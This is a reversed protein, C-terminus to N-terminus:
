RCVMRSHENLTGVGDPINKGNCVLQKAKYSPYIIKYKETTRSARSVLIPCPHSNPFVNPIIKGLIHLETNSPLRSPHAPLATTWKQKVYLHKKWLERHCYAKKESFRNSIHHTMWPQIGGCSWLESLDNKMVSELIYSYIVLVCRMVSKYDRHRSSKSVGHTHHQFNIIRQLSLKLWLYMEPTIWIKSDLIVIIRVWMCCDYVRIRPLSQNILCMGPTYLYTSKM